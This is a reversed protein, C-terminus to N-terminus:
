LFSGRSGLPRANGSPQNPLRVFSMRLDNKKRLRATIMRKYRKLMVLITHRDGLWADPALKEYEAIVWKVTDLSLERGVVVPDDANLALIDYVNRRGANPNHIILYKFRGDYTRARSLKQLKLKKIM